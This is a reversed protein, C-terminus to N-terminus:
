HRSQLARGRLPAGLLPAALCLNFAGAAIPVLGVVAVVWGAVGGILLGLVVIAVGAVIRALRGAPTSMFQAFRM